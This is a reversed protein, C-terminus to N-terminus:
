PINLASHIPKGLCSHVLQKSMAMNIARKLSQLPQM